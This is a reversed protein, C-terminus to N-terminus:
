DNHREVNALWLAVSKPQVTEHIVTILDHQLQDLALEDRLRYQFDSLTRASDYKRRYFRRDIFGQLRRRLPNFLVAVTLTAIAIALDSQQGSTARFLTQLLIVAGVYLGAITVTLLGYVLTRNILADVDWLRYRLVSVTISIPLATGMVYFITDLGMAVLGSRSSGLPTLISLLFITVAGGASIGVGLLLWKTQLRQVPDSVVRYRYIQVAIGILLLAIEILLSAPSREPRLSGGPYFFFLAYAAPTFATLARTAGPVFRGDPSVYLFITISALALADVFSVPAQLTPHAQALADPLNSDIAVSSALMTGVFFGFGDPARILLLAGIVFAVLATSSELVVSYSAFFTMSLGVHHLSVAEAPCLPVGFGGCAIRPDVTALQAFRFPIGALSLVAALIAVAGAAARGITLLSVSFDRGARMARM